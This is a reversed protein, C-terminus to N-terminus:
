VLVEVLVFITKLCNENEEMGFGWGGGSFKLNELILCVQGDKHYGIIYRAHKDYFGGAHFFFLLECNQKWFTWYCLSLFIWIPFWWGGGGGCWSICIGKLSRLSRIKTTCKGHIRVRILCQSVRNWNEM